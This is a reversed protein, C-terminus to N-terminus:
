INSLHVRKAHRITRRGNKAGRTYKQLSKKALRYAKSTRHDCGEELIRFDVASSKGGSVASALRAIGWSQATQNPRSGSSYYAGEGKRVIKQLAEVSCKTANALAKGPVIPTIGYMNEARRIHDSKKSQFSKIAPRIFYKGQRYLRRSKQLSGIQANRDKRSLQKPLYRYPVSSVTSNM